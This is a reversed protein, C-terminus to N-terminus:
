GAAEAHNKSGGLLTSMDAGMIISEVTLLDTDAVVQEAVIKDGVLRHLVLPRLFRDEPGTTRTCPLSEISGAASCM